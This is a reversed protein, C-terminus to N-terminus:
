GQWFVAISEGGDIVARRAFYLNTRCSTWGSSEELAVSSSLNRWGWPRPLNLLGLSHSFWSFVVLLLVGEEM